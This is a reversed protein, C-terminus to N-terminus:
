LALLNRAYLLNKSKRLEHKEFNMSSMKAEPFVPAPRAVIMEFAPDHAVPRSCQYGRHWGSRPWVCYLAPISSQDVDLLLAPPATIKHVSPALKCEGNLLYQLLFDHILVPDDSRPLLDFTCDLLRDALCDTVGLQLRLALSVLYLALNLVGDAAEFVRNFVGQFSFLRQWYPANEELRIIGGVAQRADEAIRYEPTQLEGLM